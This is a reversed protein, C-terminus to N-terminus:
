SSGDGHEHSISKYFSLTTLMQAVCFGVGVGPHNCYSKRYKRVPSSFVFLFVHCDANAFVFTCVLNMTVEFSILAKTKAVIGLDLIEFNRAQKESQEPQNTDAFTNCDIEKLRSTDQQTLGFYKSVFGLDTLTNELFPFTM